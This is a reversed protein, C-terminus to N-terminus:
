GVIERWQRRRRPTRIRRAPQAASPSLAASCESSIRHKAFGLEQKFVGLGPCVRRVAGYCRNDRTDRLRECPVCPDCLRYSSHGGMGVGRDCPGVGSFQPNRVAPTRVSTRSQINVTYPYEISHGRKQEKKSSVPIKSSFLFRFPQLFAEVAPSSAPEDCGMAASSNRAM